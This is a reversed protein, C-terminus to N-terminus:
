NETSEPSLDSKKPMPNDPLIDLFYITVPRYYVCLKNKEDRACRPCNYWVRDFYNAYGGFAQYFCLTKHMDIM